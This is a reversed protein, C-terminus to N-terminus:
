GSPLLCAFVTIHRASGRTNNHLLSYSCCQFEECTSKLIEMQFFVGVVVQLFDGLAQDFASGLTLAVDEATHHDDIHLDGKCSLILDFRAHKALAYLMHDLFGIGTSINAEGTGDLNIQVEIHTEKTSRQVTATRGSSEM